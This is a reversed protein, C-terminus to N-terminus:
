PSGYIVSLLFKTRKASEYYHQVSTQPPGRIHGVHHQPASPERTVPNNQDFNQLTRFKCFNTTSIAADEPASQAAMQHSGM